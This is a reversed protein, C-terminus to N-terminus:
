NHFVNGRSNNDEITSVQEHELCSVNSDGVINVNQMSGEKESRMKM